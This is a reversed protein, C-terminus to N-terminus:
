LDVKVFDLRNNLLVQHKDTKFIINSRNIVLHRSLAESYKNIVDGYYYRGPNSSGYGQIDIIFVSLFSCLVEKLEPTAEKWFNSVGFQRHLGEQNFGLLISLMKEELYFRDDDSFEKQYKEWVLDYWKLDSAKEKKDEKVEETKKSFNKKYEKFLLDSFYYTDGKKNYFAVKEGSKMMLAKTDKLAIWQGPAKFTKNQKEYYETANNM